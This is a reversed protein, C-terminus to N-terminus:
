SQHEDAGQDVEVEDPDEGLAARAVGGADEGEVHVDATELRILHTRRTHYTHDEDDDPHHQRDDDLPEAAAIQPGALHLSHSMVVVTALGAAAGGRADAARPRRTFPLRLKRPPRKAQTQNAIMMM